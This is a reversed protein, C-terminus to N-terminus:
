RRGSSGASRALEYAERYAALMADPSWATSAAAARGGLASRRAPDALLAAIADAVAAPDRPPVLVAAGDPVIDTVGDVATAVVAAGLSLSELLSLPLGEWTSTSVVCTALTVLAGVDDVAGLFRARGGTDLSPRLPGDGAIVVDTDTPLRDVAALFTPWDKQEVLRGLGVVLPRREDIGYRAQASAVQAPTPEALAAGNTIVTLRDTPFGAAALSRGVAPACAIVPQGTRRLIRAAGRYDGPALGHLTTLLPRHDGLLALRAALTAGVNHAHVVDPQETRIVTRLRRAAGLVGFPSRGSRVTAHHRAGTALLRPVWAGGASAVAVSDGRSVADEALQLVIREAGGPGLEAIVQLLKV